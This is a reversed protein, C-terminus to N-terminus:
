PRPGTYGHAVALDYLKTEEDRMWLCVDHGWSGQWACRRAYRRHLTAMQPLNDPTFTPWIDHWVVDWRTGPVWKVTMADGQLLTVRPGYEALLWAGVTAIIRQDFEVVTVHELSDLMAVTVCGLGLGNVLGTGGPHMDAMAVPMLHDAREATTDSMWLTGDVTLRAYVGPEPARGYQDHHLLEMFERMSQQDPPHIEFRDVRVGLDDIDPGRYRLRHMKDDNM